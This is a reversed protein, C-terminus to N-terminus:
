NRSINTNNSVITCLSLAAQKFAADSIDALVLPAAQQYRVFNRRISQLYGPDYHQVLLEEVLETMRGALALQQWHAIKERGHLQTLLALQGNLKEPDGVFHEYDEMLLQVRHSTSLQVATCDAARMKDMLADPVRLRGVKKSESEIFVPKAADFQRLQQWLGSEFAKQSPQDAEPLGGLVSGRHAALQELDIVQAGQKDLVQLLRSKGSGTPGCLVNIFDFAAPLTALEANVHRRYEKYGGDLQVVPWGIRALIHAMAGSRNGGRWCYVLPKWSQPHGLFHTDIHQAINKAILAAGVKKAEFASTQKYLTGVRIREDDYLVPLNIAGPLHDEAFESPSRVDIIADFAPLQPLIEAFPLVAPYKM